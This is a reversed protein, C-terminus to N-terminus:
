HGDSRDPYPGGVVARWLGRDQAMKEIQSWTYGMKRTDAELDRRWTNRPRGRKRKGQPNWRLAQRTINTPPKRLTHGIWGWRRKRILEEASLQCTREWLDANSITEPWRIKLVRRLCSNIFTQVKRITTKTTRWTEAGYLLVSKVNSNFLRIKTTLSLQRSNWINKLQIFAARAKGIRAKVDADTGGQQDIISGLYTFSQVEELPSGSLTTPEKSTTNIKLIKTKDKHINLGVQSSTATLIDTKEQMQQQNHSLLALDDAFDLDDLQSWLTWQIGNRRNNTSEKMLWDIVLIFLFPSLLCGQRVGTRVQFRDTLQGGHIVRCSMGHYSNRILNAIKAPIGYHRLLKWLTERDVSDFAKEYDVFNIYLPSKWELSQEVIIRLTAIQDTCSRNQRFGAQEDRLQSDVINKMKELLVRNFVKGPVSLLTIGRYNSCNSLDGKKPLKVLYGEKWDTPVDEEDWIREFLPYLMEVSADIDAKLAEAPIDDPGAAKGNKLLTIAKRIEERTPKECNVPLDVDSPEIAPPSPPSPRNLLDEFHQAWRNLQEELTHITNGQKDKVPREPKSFKGSLRKTTDYLQKMNGSYAAQEAEAALGEVYDIKDKRISKKVERNAEAYEGQAKAKAARTRSNNVTAKKRQRDQIKTLTEPTIWEKQQPKNPGVVQQCSSRLTEKVKQWRNSVSDEEELLEQLVEFRNKLTLSFQEKTKPDKLLRINYKVRRDSADTQNRKLKLKLSAVLLHHDSAVDAGRRVRVDQLSRRFKKNICVHDIQNETRNDPSVWTNKHIRKHPFISGGIVLSNLACLDAFREGNENMGGLAHTGMVREYGTNDSGIKANVDGMLITVDKDPYTELIRQLRSYFHDKEEDESDNTPAYCQVVHMKIRKKKTRFSATIIRPGHAEWGILSRQAQKSLMLGVGQTHHADNEEHGSYLLLEGTMLRRQGADTWRTESIGLLTLNNRRMEAAVQATKGPEYMTRVNWTGITTKRTSLLTTPKTAEKRSEGCLTM